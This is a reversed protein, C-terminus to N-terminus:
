PLSSTLTRYYYLSGLFEDDCAIEPEQAFKEVDCEDMLTSM